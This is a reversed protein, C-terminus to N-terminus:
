GALAVVEASGHKTKRDPGRVVFRYTAEGGDLRLRELFVGVTCDATLYEPKPESGSARHRVPEPKVALVVVGNLAPIAVNATGGMAAVDALLARVPDDRLAVIIPRSGDRAKATLCDRFSPDALRQYVFKTIAARDVSAM